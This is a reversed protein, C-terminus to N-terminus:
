VEDFMGGIPKIKIGKELDIEKIFEKVAPILVTKGEGTDIEYVDRSGYQLVDKLVGYKEGTEVDSVELGILDAIFFSGEKKPIDDRHAFVYKERMANASDFGDIGKLKMLLMGKHVSSREVTYETLAGNEKFFVKKVKAAVSPSDCMCQMMMNGQYGHTNVIKGLELYEKM